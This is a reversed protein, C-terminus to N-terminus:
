RRNEKVIAAKRMQGWRFDDLNYLTYAQTLLYVYAGAYHVLIWGSVAQFLESLSGSSITLVIFDWAIRHNSLLLLYVGTKYDITEASQTDTCCM